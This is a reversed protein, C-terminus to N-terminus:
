VIALSPQSNLRIRTDANLSARREKTGSAGRTESLGTSRPGADDMCDGSRMRARASASARERESVIKIPLLSQRQRLFMFYQSSSRSLSHGSPPRSASRSGPSSAGAARLREIKSLGGCGKGRADQGQVTRTCRHIRMERARTEREAHIAM